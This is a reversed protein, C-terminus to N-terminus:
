EIATHYFGAVLGAHEGACDKAMETTLTGGLDRRVLKEQSHM